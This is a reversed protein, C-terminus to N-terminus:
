WIDAKGEVDKMIKMWDRDFVKKIYKKNHPIECNSCDQHIANEGKCTSGNKSDISCFSMMKKGDIEKFGVEDKFRFNPCACLYCNLEKMDHCKINKAYLPCFNPENKQMNEYRFYEIVEDNNLSSLKGIIKKHKINHKRMWDQYSM